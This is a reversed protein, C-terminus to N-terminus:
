LLGGLVFLGLGNECNPEASHVTLTPAHPVSVGHSGDLTVQWHIRLAEHTCRRPECGHTVRGSTAPPVEGIVAPQM